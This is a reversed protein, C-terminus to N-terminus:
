QWKSHTQCVAERCRCYWSCYRRYENQMRQPVPQLANIGKNIDTLQTNSSIRVCVQIFHSGREFIFIGRVFNRECVAVVCVCVRLSLFLSVALVFVSHVSLCGFLTHSIKLQFLDVLSSRRIRFWTFLTCYVCFDSCYCLLLSCIENRISWEINVTILHKFCKKRKFCSYLCCFLCGFGNSVCLRLMRVATEAHAIQSTHITHM